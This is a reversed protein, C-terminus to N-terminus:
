RLCVPSHLPLRIGEECGRDKAPMLRGGGGLATNSRRVVM